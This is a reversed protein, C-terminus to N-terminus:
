SHLKIIVYYKQGFKAQLNQNVLKLLWEIRERNRKGNSTKYKGSVFAINNVIISSKISQGDAISRKPILKINMPRKIPTADACVRKPRKENVKKIILM